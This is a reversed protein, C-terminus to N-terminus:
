TVSHRFVVQRSGVVSLIDRGVAVEFTDIDAAVWPIRHASALEVNHRGAEELIRISDVALPVRKDTEVEFTGRGVGPASIGIGAAAEPTRRCVEM